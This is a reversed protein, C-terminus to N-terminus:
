YKTRREEGEESNKKRRARNATGVMERGLIHSQISGKRIVKSIHQFAIFVGKLDDKLELELELELEFGVCEGDPVVTGEEDRELEM